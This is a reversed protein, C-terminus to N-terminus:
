GVGISWRVLYAADCIKRRLLRAFSSAPLLSSLLAAPGLLLVRFLGGCLILGRALAGALRGEHKAFYEHFARYILGTIWSPRPHQDSSAQGLHLVAHSGLYHLRFGADSIRRCYDMDELYLFLREDLGGIRELVDRRFALFAGCLCGVDRSDRHDWEGMRYGAFWRSRPFLNELFFLDFVLDRLRPLRRGGEWGVEGDAELLRVGVAGVDPQARLLDVVAELTGAQLQTDPNLLLLHAGRALALGQNVARPFGRNDDNALLTVEPFAAGVAALSGDASDNDIVITEVSLDGCHRAISGLCDLLEDRANWNVIVITLDCM